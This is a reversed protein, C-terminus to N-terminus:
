RVQPEDLRRATPRSHRGIGNPSQREVHKEGANGIEPNQLMAEDM